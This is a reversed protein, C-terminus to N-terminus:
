DGGGIRTPSVTQRKGGPQYTRLRFDVELERRALHEVPGVGLGPYAVATAIVRPIHRAAQRIFDVVAPFAELGYRSRCLRHYEVPDAANLSVSISDIVEALEPVIDRQHHLSGLGNSNLRLSRARGKLRRGVELLLDLRITPEGYGCFVVQDYKAPDGVAELVEDASPDRELRLDHGKVTYDGGRACFLCQNSCRNTVNLYLSRRIPYAITSEPKPGDLGLFAAANRGTIRVLDEYTLPSLIRALERVTHVVLAPENKKGRHPVPTLYPSDTEVLLRNTPLERAVAPLLSKKYTLNGAFSVHFGLEVARRGEEPTGSFCHMIGRNIGSDEIIRLVDDMAKRCHVVVPLGVDVALDLQRRFTDQQSDRPVTDYHYDLGIEGLAVVEPARCMTRLRDFWGKSVTTLDSPHIGVAATVPPHSRAHEIAQRSTEEDTGVDVVCSVGVARARDLVAPLNDVYHHDTLHAHTDILRDAPWSGPEPHDV